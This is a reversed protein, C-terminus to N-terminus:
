GNKACAQGYKYQFVEGVVAVPAQYIYKNGSAVGALDGDNNCAAKVNKVYQSL